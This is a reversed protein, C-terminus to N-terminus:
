VKMTVLVRALWGYVCMLKIYYISRQSAKKEGLMFVATTSMSM